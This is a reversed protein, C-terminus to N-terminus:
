FYTSLLIVCAASLVWIEPLALAIDVNSIPAPSM